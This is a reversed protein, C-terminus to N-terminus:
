GPDAMGPARVVVVPCVATRVLTHTASGLLLSAFGGRGRTGLLLREAGEAERHLVRAVHGERTEGVVELAGDSAGRERLRDEVRALGKQLVPGADAETIDHGEHETPGRSTVWEAVGPRWVVVVRLTRGLEWATATAADLALGSPESGDYGVVVPADPPLDARAADAPVVVVPCLAHATVQLVVSGRVAEYLGGHGTAGLVLAGADHSVGVLAAAPSAYEVYTETEVGPAVDRARAAAEEVVPWPGEHGRDGLDDGHPRAAVGTDHADRVYVVRLVAGRMRAERAAWALAVDAPESADYGVVVPATRHESM